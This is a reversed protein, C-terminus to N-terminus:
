CGETSSPLNSKQRDGHVALSLLHLRSFEQDIDDVAASDQNRLDAIMGLKTGDLGAIGAHDLHVAFEHSGASGIGNVAGMDFGPRRFCLCRATFGEIADKAIMQKVARDAVVVVAIAGDVVGRNEELDFMLFDGELRLGEFDIRAIGKIAVVRLLANEAPTANFGALIELYVLGEADAPFIWM